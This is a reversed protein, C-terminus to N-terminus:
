AEQNSAELDNTGPFFGWYKFVWKVGGKREGTDVCLFDGEACGGQAVGEQLGGGGAGAGAGPGAGRATEFGMLHM